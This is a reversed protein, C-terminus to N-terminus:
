IRYEFRVCINSGEQGRRVVLGYDEPVSENNFHAKILQYNNLSRSFYLQGVIDRLMEKRELKDIAELLSRKPLKCMYNILKLLKSITAKEQYPLDKQIMPSDPEQIILMCLNLYGQVSSFWDSVKTLPWEILLSSTM